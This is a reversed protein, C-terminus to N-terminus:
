YTLVAFLKRRVDCSVDVSYGREGTMVVSTVSYGCEEGTIVMSTVSYGCDGGTTVVSTLVTAM